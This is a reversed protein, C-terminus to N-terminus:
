EWFRFERRKKPNWFALGTELTIGRLLKKNDPHLNAVLSELREFTCTRAEEIIRCFANSMLGGRIEIVAKANEADNKSAELLKRGEIRKM